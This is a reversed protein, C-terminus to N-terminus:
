VKKWNIYIIIYMILNDCTNIKTLKKIIHSIILQILHLAGFKITQARSCLKYPLHYLISNHYGCLYSMNSIVQNSLLLLM